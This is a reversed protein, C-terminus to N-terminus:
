KIFVPIKLSCMNMIKSRFIIKELNDSSVNLVSEYEGAASNIQGDEDAASSRIALKDSQILSLGKELVEYESGIFDQALFSFLQPINFLTNCNILQDLIRFKSKNHFRCSEMHMEKM